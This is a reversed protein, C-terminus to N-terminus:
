YRPFLFTHNEAHHNGEQSYSSSSSSGVRGGSRFRSLEEGICPECNWMASEHGQPAAQLNGGQKACSAVDPKKGHAQGSCPKPSPRPSWLHALHSCQSPPRPPLWEEIPCILCLSGHPPSTSLGVWRCMLRFAKSKGVSIGAKQGNEVTNWVWM